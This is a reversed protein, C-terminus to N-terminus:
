IDSWIGDLQSKRFGKPFATMNMSPFVLHSGDHKKVVLNNWNDNYEKIYFERRADDEWFWRAFKEKM